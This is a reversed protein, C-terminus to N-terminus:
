VKVEPAREYASGIRTLQDLAEAFLEYLHKLRELDKIIGPVHFYLEDVGEPFTPGFWGEDDKVTLHIDKQTDILERLKASSFLSRLRGEDNGKVVFDHDFPEIGMDVDQMGLLKGLDTFMGKRYITFRFGDPNVYPSRMRTFPIMAKGAPVVYNDLTVTWEGHSGEVRDGKWMGGDVYKGQIETALQRWIEAKSPGFLKRLRGM